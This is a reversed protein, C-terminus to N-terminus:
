ITIRYMPSIILIPILFFLIFPALFLLISLLLALRTREGKREKNSLYFYYGLNGGAFIAPILLSFLLSILAQTGLFEQYVPLLKFSVFGFNIILLVNLIFAILTIIKPTKM